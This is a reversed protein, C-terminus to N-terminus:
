AFLHDPDAETGSQNGNKTLAGAGLGGLTAISNWMNTSNTADTAAKANNYSQATAQANTANGNAIDAANNPTVYFSSPSMPNVKPALSGLMSTISSAQQLRTNGYNLSNVGLDRLLSFDNVQGRAGTSIGREAAIRAINDEVEKPVAYPNDAADQAQKTLSGALKEYGPFAKNFLSLAQDQNFSNGRSLLAEIGSSNQLNTDIATRSTQGIDLPAQFVPAGPKNNNATVAGGIVGIAAGAIAGWSM